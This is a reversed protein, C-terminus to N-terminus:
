FGQWLWSAQLVKSKYAFLSINERNNVQRLELQLSHNEKVPFSLAARWTQTHQNRAQNILGPSYALQSQWHQYSWGLDALVYENIKGRGQLSFLEGSRDGGLRVGSARDSLLAASAQARYGSAQYSLTSRLEWTHADYGALTPYQTKTLGAILNLQLASPLKLPPTVRMQLLEQEQYLRQDLTLAGLMVMASANWEGLRWPHELGLALALTDFKSLADYRRARFQAFGITGVPHLERMYDASLTSFKDKKPLFEPLLPLEVHAAGSGFGFNPNSAGQNVNSDIGRELLVSMRSNVRKNQCGQERHKAIVERIAAVPAFRDIIDQFLKEAETANGLECQIIALDLWAGAHQPEIEILRTLAAKADQQRHESIARLAELYLDESSDPAALIPGCLSLGFLLTALRKILKNSSANSAANSVNFLRRM